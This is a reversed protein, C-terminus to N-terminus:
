QKEGHSNDVKHTHETHTPMCAQLSPSSVSNQEIVAQRSSGTARRNRGWLVCTAVGPKKEPIKGEAHQFRFVYLPKQEGLWKKLELM